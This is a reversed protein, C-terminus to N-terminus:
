QINFATTALVNKDWDLVELTWAGARGKPAMFSWVRYNSSRVPFKIVAVDKGDRRWRHYIEMPESAGKVRCWGALQVTDAPFSSAAGQLVREVVSTGVGVEATLEAAAARMAPLSLLIGILALTRIKM